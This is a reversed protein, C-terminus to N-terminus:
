FTSIAGGGNLLWQPSPEDKNAIEWRVSDLNHNAVDLELKGAEVLLKDFNNKLNTTDM